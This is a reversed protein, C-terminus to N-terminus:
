RIGILDGESIHTRTVVHYVVELLADLPLSLPIGAEHSDFEPTRACECSEVSDDAQLLGGTWIKPVGHKGAPSM